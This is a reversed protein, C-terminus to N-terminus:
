RLMQVNEKIKQAIIKINGSKSIETNIENNIEEEIFSRDNGTPSKLAKLKIEPLNIKRENIKLVIYGGNYNWKGREPDFASLAPSYEFEILVPAATQFPIDKLLPALAPRIASPYNFAQYKIPSPKSKVVKPEIHPPKPPPTTDQRITGPRTTDKTLTVEIPEDPVRGKSKATYVLAALLVGFGSLLMYHVPKLYFKRPADQQATFELLSNLIRNHEINFSETSLVGEMNEDKLKQFRAAIQLVVNNRRQNGETLLLLQEIAEEIRDESILDRIEDM